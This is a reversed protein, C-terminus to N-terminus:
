NYLLPAPYVRGTHMVGPRHHARGHRGEQGPHREPCRAPCGRGRDSLRFGRRAPGVADKIADSGGAVAPAPRTGCACGTGDNTTRGFSVGFPGVSGAGKVVDIAFIPEKGDEGGMKVLASPEYKKIEELDSLKLSSTLVVADGAIIINAM